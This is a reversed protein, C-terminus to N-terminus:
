LDKVEPYPDAFAQQFAAMVQSEIESDITARQDASLRLAQIKLPDRTERLHAVEQPDRTDDGKSHPGFRQTHLILGRPAGQSRIESLLKGATMSIELIDSSDLEVVSIGFAALRLTMDGALAIETPTTQAIQNNEIVYLIPANWLAALNFSEYVVGQGLTGDGLFCVPLYLRCQGDPRYRRQHGGDKGQRRQCHGSLGGGIRSRAM